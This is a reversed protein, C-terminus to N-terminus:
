GTTCMCHWRIRVTACSKTALISSSRDTGNTTIASGNATSMCMPMKKDVGGFALHVPRGEEADVEISARYWAAEDYGGYGQDEWAQGIDITDWDSDDFDSAAYSRHRQSHKSEDLRFKWQVPVKAVEEYAYPVVPPTYAYHYYQQDSTHELFLIHRPILRAERLPNRHIAELHRELQRKTHDLQRKTHDVLQRQIAELQRRMQEDTFVSDAGVSLSPWLLSSIEFESATLASSEIMAERQHASELRQAAEEEVQPQGPYKDRVAEYTQRAQELGLKEQCVGVRVQARAAMSEDGKGKEHAEIVQQYLRIAEKLKGEGKEQMLAAQYTEEVSSALLGNATLLM